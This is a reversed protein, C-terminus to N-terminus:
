HRNSDEDKEENKVNKNKLKDREIKRQLTYIDIKDKKPAENAYKEDLEKTRYKEALDKGNEVINCDFSLVFNGDFVVIDVLHPDDYSYLSADVSNWGKDGYWEAKKFGIFDSRYDKSEYMKYINSILIADIKGFQSAMSPVYLDLKVRKDNTNCTKVVMRTVFKELNFRPTVGDYDLSLTTYFDYMGSGFYENLDLSEATMSDPVFGNSKVFHKNDQITKLKYGDEEYVPAHKMFDAVTKKVVVHDYVNDFNDGDFGERALNPNIKYKDAERLVRYYKDRLEVVRETQQNQLLDSLVSDGGIHKIAHVGEDLSNKQGAIENEAVAMGHFLSDIAIGIKAKIKDIKKGM